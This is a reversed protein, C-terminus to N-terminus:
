CRSSQTKPHHAQYARFAFTLGVILRPNTRATLPLVVPGSLSGSPSLLTGRSGAADNWAPRSRSRRTSLPADTNTVVHSTTRADPISALM